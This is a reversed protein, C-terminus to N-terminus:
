RFYPRSWKQADFYYRQAKDFEKGHELPVAPVILMEELLDKDKRDKKSDEIGEWRQKDLDLDFDKQFHNYFDNYSWVFNHSRGFDPLFPQPWEEEIKEMELDTYMEGEGASLKFTAKESGSLTIDIDGHESIISMPSEQNVERFIVEINGRDTRAIVPGTVNQLLIDRSSTFIEIEKSVNNITVKRQEELGSSAVYINVNDPISLTYHLNKASKGGNLEIIDDVINMSLGLGTNDTGSKTLPRLGQAKAPPEPLGEAAIQLENGSHVRIDLDADIDILRLYYEGKGSLTTSYHQAGTQVLGPVIILLSIVLKKMKM